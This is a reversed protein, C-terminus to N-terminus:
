ADETASGHGMEDFCNCPSRIAAISHRDAAITSSMNCMMRSTILSIIIPNIFGFFFLITKYYNRKQENTRNRRWLITSTM